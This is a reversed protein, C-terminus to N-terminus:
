ERDHDHDAEAFEGDGDEDRNDGSRRLTAIAEFAGDLDAAADIGDVNAGLEVLAAVVGPRLGCLVVRAGMIEAMAMTSRVADFDERDMVHVGSFDLIVGAARSASLADLVDARLQRLVEDSLDIQISAVVCDGAIQLPIRRSGARGEM